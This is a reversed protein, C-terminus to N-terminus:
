RVEPAAPTTCAGDMFRKLESQSHVCTRQVRGNADKRAVLYEQFRGQLDVSASGDAHRVETLGTTSWNLDQEAHPVVAAAEAPTPPGVVGTEADRYIRLGSQMPPIAATRHVTAVRRPTAAKAVTAKAVATKAAAAKRTPRSAAGAGAVSLSLVALAVMPWLLRARRARLTFAPAFRHM